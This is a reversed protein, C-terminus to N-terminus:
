SRQSCRMRRDFSAPDLNPIQPMRVRENWNWSSMLMLM